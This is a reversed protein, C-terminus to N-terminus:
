DAYAPADARWYGCFYVDDKGLGRERVLHRRVSTALAAEGAVWAYVGESPLSRAAVDELLSGADGAVRWSVEVGDRVPLDPADQATPVEVLVTATTGAPLAALIGAAAPVGTADAVLLVHETGAPPAFCTDQVIVGVEDGPAARLAWASAPGTEGHAVLDVDLEGDAPRADRVTYNRLVPREDAPMAQMEPWWRETEPLRPREQGPRPLLLRFYQDAGLAPAARLDEGALTVRVVSPTVRRVASVRVPVAVAALRQRVPRRRATGARGAARQSPAVRERHPAAQAPASAPRAGTTTTM